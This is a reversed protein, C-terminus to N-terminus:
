SFFDSCFDRRLSTPMKVPARNNSLDLFLLVFVLDVM